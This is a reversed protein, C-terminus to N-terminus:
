NGLCFSSRGVGESLEVLRINRLVKAIGDSNGANGANIRHKVWGITALAVVRELKTKLFNDALVEELLEPSLGLFETRKQLEDFNRRIKDICSPLLKTMGNREACETIWFVNQLDMINKLYLCCEDILSEIQLLTAAQLIGRVNGENMEIVGSYCFDLVDRLADEEIGELSVTEISNDRCFINAFFPSVTALLIRHASVSIM